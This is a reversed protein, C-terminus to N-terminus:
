YFLFFSIEFRLFETLGGSPDIIEPGLPLSIVSLLGIM